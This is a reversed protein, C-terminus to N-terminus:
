SFKKVGIILCVETKSKEHLGKLCLVEHNVKRAIMLNDPAPVFSFTKRDSGDLVLESIFDTVPIHMGLCKGTRVCTADYFVSPVAWERQYAQPSIAKALLLPFVNADLASLCRDACRVHLMRFGRCLGKKAPTRSTCAQGVFEFRGSAVAFQWFDQVLDASLPLRWLPFVQRNQKCLMDSVSFVLSNKYVKQSASFGLYAANLENQPLDAQVTSKWM